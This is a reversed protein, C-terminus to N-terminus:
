LVNCWAEFYQFTFPQKIHNESFFIVCLYGEKEDVHTIYGLNDVNGCKHNILNGIKYKM